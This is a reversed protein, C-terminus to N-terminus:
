KGVRPNEKRVVGEDEAKNKADEEDEAGWTVREGDQYPDVSAIRRNYCADNRCGSSACSNLLVLFIVPAIKFFIKKM